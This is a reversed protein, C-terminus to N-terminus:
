RFMKAPIKLSKRKKKQQPVDPKDEVGILSKLFDAGFTIVAECVASSKMSIKIESKTKTVGEDLLRITNPNKLLVGIEKEDMCTSVLSVMKKTLSCFLNVSIENGYKLESIKFLTQDTKPKLKTIEEKLSDTPHNNSLISYYDNADTKSYLLARGSWQDVLVGLIPPMNTKNTYLEVYATKITEKVGEKFEQTPTLNIDGSFDNEGYKFVALPSDTKQKQFFEALSSNKIPTFSFTLSSGSKDLDLKGNLEQLQAMLNELWELKLQLIKYSNLQQKGFPKSMAIDKVGADILDSLQDRFHKVFLSPKTRLIIDNEATPTKPPEKLSDLLAQSDSLAILSGFRKTSMGRIAKTDPLAKGEKLTMYICSAITAPKENQADLKYFCLQIPAKMDLGQYQPNMSIASVGLAMITAYEQSVEKVVSCANNLSNSLSPIEMEAIMETEAEATIITALLSVVVCTKKLFNM